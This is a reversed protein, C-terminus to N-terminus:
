RRRLRVAVRCSRLFDVADFTHRLTYPTFTIENTEGYRQYCQYIESFSLGGRHLHLAYLHHRMRHNASRQVHGGRNSSSPTPNRVAHLFLFTFSTHLSLNGRLITNTRRKSPSAFGRRAAMQQSTLGALDCQLASSAITREGSAASDCPFPLAPQQAFLYPLQPYARSQSRHAVCYFHPRPYLHSRHRSRHSHMGWSFIILPALAIQCAM